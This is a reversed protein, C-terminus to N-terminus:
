LAYFDRSNKTRLLAHRYVAYDVDVKHPILHNSICATTVSTAGRKILESKITKMTTGTDVSDDVVLISKDAVEFDIELDAVMKQAMGLKLKILRVAVEFHRTLDSLWKRKFIYEKLANTKALTSARRVTIFYKECPGGFVAAFLESLYRGANPVFVIADFSVGQSTFHQMMTQIDSKIGDDDRKLVRYPWWRM